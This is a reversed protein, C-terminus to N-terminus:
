HFYRISVFLSGNWSFNEKLYLIEIILALSDNKQVECESPSPEFPLLPVMKNEPQTFTGIGAM